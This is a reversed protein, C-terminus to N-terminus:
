FILLLVDGTQDETVCVRHSKFSV